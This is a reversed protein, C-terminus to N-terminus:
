SFSFLLRSIHFDFHRRAHALNSFGMKQSLGIVFNNLTAMVTAMNQHSIRTADEHLTVDRRYHLGNEIGWYHRTATLLQRADASHPSCSTIGYVIETTARKSKTHTIHRELMFLQQLAPWNLFNDKDVMLTLRRLEIRGHGATTEEVVTRPLPAIYWGASHHPPTFFQRVDANLTPQNDKVFWLYDGGRSVIEASLDRQTQMADACVIRGRLDIGALLGAAASIENETVGVQVQKLVVGEEPLYVALLHVGRKLGKPITGRMTKGDITVLRSTFGGYTQHLYDRLVKELDDPKLVESMITRITNLCVMRQRSWGFLAWLQEQRERIWTTMGSPKDEGALKALILMVVVMSLPYIKGRAARTDVLKQCQKELQGIDFAIAGKLRSELIIQRM